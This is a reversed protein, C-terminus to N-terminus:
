WWSSLCGQDAEIRQFDMVEHLYGSRDNSTAQLLEDLGDLLVVRVMGRSQEALRWWDVRKNTALDLGQQIQEYIPANAAVQRLPVRVVAYSTVPLRAALVKTLLSKGAGPHGLLLLPLRAASPAMIHAALILDFNDDSPQEAWWNENAAHVVVKATSVIRYSPNIYIRSVSPFLVGTGYREADVPVIPQDLVGRNARGLVSCLDAPGGAMSAQLTLLAEVRALAGRNVELAVEMDARLNIIQSRTAAHEGIMAWVM